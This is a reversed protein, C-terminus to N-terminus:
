DWALWTTVGAGNSSTPPHSGKATHKASTDSACNSISPTHQDLTCDMCIVPPGKCKGVCNFVEDGSTWCDIGPYREILMQCKKLLKLLNDLTSTKQKDDVYYKTCEISNVSVNTLQSVCNQCTTTGHCSNQDCTFSREPNLAGRCTMQTGPQDGSTIPQYIYTCTQPASRASLPVVGSVLALL